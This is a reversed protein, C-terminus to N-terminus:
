AVLPESVLPESGAPLLHEGARRLSALLDAASPCETGQALFRKIESLVFFDAHSLDSSSRERDKLAMVTRYWNCLTQWRETEGAALRIWDALYGRFTDAVALLADTRDTRQLAKELTWAQKAALGPEMEGDVLGHRYGYFRVVVHGGDSAVLDTLLNKGRGQLGNAPMDGNIGLLFDAQKALASPRLEEFEARRDIIPTASEKKEDTATPVITAQPENKELTAPVPPEGGDTRSISDPIAPASVTGADPTEVTEETTRSQIAAFKERAAEVEDLRGTKKLLQVLLEQAYPNNPEIELVEHLVTEAEEHRNIKCFLRGLETRPPINNPDIDLAKRLVTEAEEHRNIKSFLRGLETRPPINNPDIDLAERLVTEAEEHRNIKILLRGLETRSHIHNPDIHISERLVTEAEEHRNIKIFLRGLETRSHINNPEIRIAERLVTEAEENRDQEMLLRGLETHIRVQNPMLRLSEWFVWEAAQQKGLAALCRGYLHWSAKDWTDLTLARRILRLAVPLMWPKNLNLLRHVVMNTARVLYYHDGTQAVYREHDAFLRALSQKARERNVVGTFEELVREQDEPYPSSLSKPPTKPKQTNTPGLERQWRDILNSNFNRELLNDLVPQVWTRYTSPGRPYLARTARFKRIFLRDNRAHPLWAALGGIWPPPDGVKLARCQRLGTMGINLYYGPLTADAERCLRMWFPALGPAIAASEALTRYLAALPDRQPALILPALLGRYRLLNERLHNRFHDLQLLSSASMVENMWHVYRSLGFDRRQQDNWSLFNEFWGTLTQDLTEKLPDDATLGGLVMNLTVAPDAREYGPIPLRGHVYDDWIKGPNEQFLDIWIEIPSRM